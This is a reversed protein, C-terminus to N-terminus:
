RCQLQETHRGQGERASKRVSLSVPVWSLEAWRREGAKRERVGRKKCKKRVEYALLM